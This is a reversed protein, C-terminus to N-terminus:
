SILARRQRIPERPVLHNLPCGRHLPIIAWEGGAIRKFYSLMQLSSVKKHTIFQSGCLVPLPSGFLWWAPVRTGDPVRFLASRSLATHETAAQRYVGSHLCFIVSHALKSLVEYGQNMVAGCRNQLLPGLALRTLHRQQSRDDEFLPGM